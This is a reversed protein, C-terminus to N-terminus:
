GDAINSEHNVALEDMSGHGGTQVTMIKGTEFNGGTMWLDERPFMESTDTTLEDVGFM